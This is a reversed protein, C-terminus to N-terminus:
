VTQSQIQAANAPVVLTGGDSGCEDSLAGRGLRKIQGEDLLRRCGAAGRQPQGKRGFLAEAIENATLGPHAHIVEAINDTTAM